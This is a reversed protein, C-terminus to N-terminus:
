APRYSLQYLLFRGFGDTGRCGFKNLTGFYFLSDNGLLTGVVPLTGTAYIVSVEPHASGFRSSNRYPLGAIAHEGTFLSSSPHGRQIGKGIQFLSVDLGHRHRVFASGSSLDTIPQSQPAADHTAQQPLIREIFRTLINSSAHLSESQPLRSIHDSRQCNFCALFHVQPM